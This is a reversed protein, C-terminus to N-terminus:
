HAQPHHGQLYWDRQSLYEHNGCQEPKEAGCMCCDPATRAYWHFVLIRGLYRGVKWCIAVMALWWAIVLVFLVYDIM